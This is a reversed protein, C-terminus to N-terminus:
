SPDTLARIEANRVLEPDVDSQRRMLRAQFGQSARKAFRKHAEDVSKRLRMTARELKSTVVNFDM